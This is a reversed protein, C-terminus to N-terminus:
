WHVTFFLFQANMDITKTRIQTEGSPPPADKTFGDGLVRVGFKRGVGYGINWQTTKDADVGGGVTLGVGVFNIVQSGNSGSSTGGLGVGIM